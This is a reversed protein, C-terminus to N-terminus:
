SSIVQQYSDLEDEKVLTVANVFAEGLVRM